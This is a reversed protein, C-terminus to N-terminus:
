NVVTDTSEPNLNIELKAGPKLERSIIAESLPDELYRQIARKLPRAGYKPDFGKDAVFDRTAQPISLVFGAEETRAFLDALEIDIIKHIDERALSDFIIVDDIRNLFEPAFVKRLANEIM